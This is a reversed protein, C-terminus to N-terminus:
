AKPVSARLLGPLDALGHPKWGLEEAGRQLPDPEGVFM